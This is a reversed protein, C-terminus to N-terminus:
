FNSAKSSSGLRWSPAFQYLGELIDSVVAQLPQNGDIEVIHHAREQQLYKIAALYKARYLDLKTEFLELPENRKNMRERCVAASVNLFFIIDPQKAQKNLLMVQDFSFDDASNYVLSSLYYRDCIVVQHKGKKLWPQIIRSNHDLRNAAYALSLVYPDFETIRKELVARIYDGGCCDNNPEYTRKIKESFRKELEIKLAESASSKGSGDLGEIVIFLSNKGM